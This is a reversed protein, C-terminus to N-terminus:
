SPKSVRPLTDVLGFLEPDPEDDVVTAPASEGLEADGASLLASGVKVADPGIRRFGDARVDMVPVDRRTSLWPVVIIPGSRSQASSAM